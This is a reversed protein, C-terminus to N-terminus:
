PDIRVIGHLDMLPQVYTDYFQVAQPYLVQYWHDENTPIYQYFVQKNADVVTYHCGKKNNIVGNGTIQDYHSNFLHSFDNPPPCHGRATADIYNVLKRYMNEATKYEVFDENEQEGDMSSRFRPDQKWVSKGVTSIKVNRRQSDWERIAPEADQGRKMRFKSLDSFEKKKLGCVYLAQIELPETWTSEARGVHYSISSMNIAGIALKEWDPTGQPHLSVWCTPRSEWSDFVYSTSEPGASPALRLQSRLSGLPLANGDGTRERVLQPIECTIPEM